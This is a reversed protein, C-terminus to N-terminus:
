LFLMHTGTPPLASPSLSLIEFLSRQDLLGMCPEIVGGQSWWGLLFWSNSVQGFSDGPAGWGMYMLKTKELEREEGPFSFQKLTPPTKKIVFIYSWKQFDTWEFTVM